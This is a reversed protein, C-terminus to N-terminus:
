LARLGLDPRLRGALTVLLGWYGRSVLAGLSPSASDLGGRVFVAWGVAFPIFSRGTWTWLKALPEM